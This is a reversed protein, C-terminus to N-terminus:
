CEGSSFCRSRMAGHHSDFHLRLQQLAVRTGCMALRHPLIREAGSRRDRISRSAGETCKGDKSVCSPSDFLNRRYWRQCRLAHGCDARARALGTISKPSMWVNAIGTRMVFAGSVGTDTTESMLERIPLMMPVAKPSHHTAENDPFCLSINIFLDTGVKRHDLTKVRIRIGPNDFKQCPLVWREVQQVPIL